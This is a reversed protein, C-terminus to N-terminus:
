DCFEVIDNIFAFFLCFNYKIFIYKSEIYRYLMQLLFVNLVHDVEKYRLVENRLFM